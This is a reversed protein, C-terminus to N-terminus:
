RDGDAQMCGSLVCKLRYTIKPRIFFQQVYNLLDEAARINDSTWHPIQPGFSGLTLSRGYGPVLTLLTIYLSSPYLLSFYLLHFNLLTIYLKNLNFETRKLLYRWSMIVDDFPFMKWTVPGKHPSNVPSNGVFSVFSLDMYCRNM